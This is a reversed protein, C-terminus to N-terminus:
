YILGVLSCIKKLPNTQKFRFCTDFIRIRDISSTGEQVLQALSMHFFHILVECYKKILYKLNGKCSLVIWCLRTLCPILLKETCLFSLFFPLLFPFLFAPLFLPLFSSLLPPLGQKENALVEHQCTVFVCFGEKVEQRRKVFDNM